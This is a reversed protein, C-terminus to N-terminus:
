QKGRELKCYSAFEVHSCLLQGLEVSSLMQPIAGTGEAEM